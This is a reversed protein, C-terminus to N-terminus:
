RQLILKGREEKGDEYVLRWLYLGAALQSVDLSRFAGRSHLHLVERGQIDFLAFQWQKTIRPILLTIYDRAPNPYLRVPESNNDLKDNINTLNDIGLTDCPSGDIPGLRYNPFNPMSYANLTPMKFSHQNVNCALGPEDPNDITHLYTTNNGVIYIKGDPGLQKWVFTTGFPLGGSSDIFGDYEAVTTKSALIDPALLDFQWIEFRNALYLYRSNPSIAASASSTVTSDVFEIHVPNSMLGTCRDFPFIQIHYKYSDFDNQMGAQIYKTGDPTFLHQGFILKNYIGKQITHVLQITDPSALFVYYKKRNFRHQVIWWDRGNAHRTASIYGPPFTDLKIINDKEIVVLENNIYGIKSARFNYSVVDGNVNVNFPKHFLYYTNLEENNEDMFALTLGGQVPAAGQPYNNLFDQECCNLSDGNTILLHNAGVVHYGDFYYLLNGDKDSQSTNTARLWIGNHNHWSTDFSTGNFSLLSGGTPRIPQSGYGFLWNYDSKIDIPYQANVSISFCMLLFVLCM